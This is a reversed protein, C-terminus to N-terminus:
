SFELESKARHYALNLRTMAQHSGGHDPHLRQAQLRYARKVCTADEEGSSVGLVQRWPPDEVLPPTPPTNCWAERWAQLYLRTASLSLRWFLLGFM